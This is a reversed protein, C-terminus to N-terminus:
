RPPPAHRRLWLRLKSRTSSPRLIWADNHNRFGTSLFTFNGPIGTARLYDKTSNLRLSSQSTNVEDCVFQPRKNLRNLRVLASARNAGPYPWTTRVGDYGSYPVFAHWLSAIEDDYLGIYNCAIAGRSFGSLIVRNPDGGFQSCIWPITAKTYAVTQDPRYSPKNGWWTTVNATGSENLYPVSLWIYGKGGSLGFGLKADEVRGTSVDGYQNRYDGNGAFEVIVPYRRGSKWDVPLYLVHYVSTSAFHPHTQRVRKGPRAPGLDIHPIFLDPAVTRIDPANQPEVAGGSFPIAFAVIPLFSFLRNM